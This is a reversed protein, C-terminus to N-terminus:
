FARPPTGEAVFYVLDTQRALDGSAYRGNQQWNVEGAFPLPANRLELAFGRGVQALLHELMDNKSAFACPVSTCEVDFHQGHDTLLFIGFTDHPLTEAVYTGVTRWSSGMRQAISSFRVSASAKTLHMNHGMLVLPGPEALAADVARYMTKERETYAAVLAANSPNHFAVAAFRWSDALALVDERGNAAKALGDALRAPDAEAARELTSRLDGLPLRAAMQESANLPDTDVDFGFWHLRATDKPRTESMKRLERAFSKEAAVFAVKAEHPLGKLTGARATKVGTAQYIGIKELEREDGNELYADIHAGDSRGMEMGLRRWGRAFLRRIFALRMEYKEQIYHDPEGLFVVRKAAITDMLARGRPDSELDVPLQREKAWAVSTPPANEPHLSPTPAGCAVACCVVGLGVTLRPLM